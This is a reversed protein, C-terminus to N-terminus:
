KNPTRWYRDANYITPFQSHIPFSCSRYECVGTKLAPHSNQPKDAVTVLPTFVLLTCPLMDSTHIKGTSRSILIRSPMRAGISMIYTMFIFSSMQLTMQKRIHWLDSPSSMSKIMYQQQWIMVSDAIPLTSSCMSFRRVKKLIDDPAM